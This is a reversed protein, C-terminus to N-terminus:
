DPDPLVIGILWGAVSIVVAGWFTSWWFADSALGLDWVDPGALWVVLQLVLANVILLFLGMTLIILPLSFIKLIPKVIANALGVLATVILFQWFSGDFTLGGVLWVAVWLSAGTTAFRLIFGV